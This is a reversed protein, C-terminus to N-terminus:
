LAKAKEMPGESSQLFKRRNEELINSIAEKIKEIENKTKSMIVKVNPSATIKSQSLLYKDCIGDKYSNKNLEQNAGIQNMKIKSMYNKFGITNRQILLEQRLLDLMDQTLTCLKTAVSSGNKVIHNGKILVPDVKKVDHSRFDEIPVDAEGVAELVPEEQESLPASNSKSKQLQEALLSLSKLGENVSSTNGSKQDNEVQSLLTKLTEIGDMADGM